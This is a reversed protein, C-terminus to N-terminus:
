MGPAANNVLRIVNLGGSGDHSVPVQHQFMLIILSDYQTQWSTSLAGLTGSLSAFFHTRHYSSSHRSAQDSSGLKEHAANALAQVRLRSVALRM